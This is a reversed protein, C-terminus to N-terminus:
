WSRRRCCRVRSTPSCLFCCRRRRWCRQRMSSSPSRAKDASPATPRPETRYQHRQHHRWLGASIANALGLRVLLRDDGARLEGPRSALKACLLADISAIIALALASSVILPWSRELPEAMALGSFDVLVTRMAASATPPGIVPGLMDALGALALGCYALMGCGLGVLMPPVKTTIRRANWMAAFTLAAVLVSLPRTEGIAASCTPSAFM